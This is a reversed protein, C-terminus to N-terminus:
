QASAVRQPKGGLSFIGAPRHELQGQTILFFREMDPINGFGLIDRLAKQFLDKELEFSRAIKTAAFPRVAPVAEGLRRGFNSDCLDDPDHVARQGRDVADADDSMLDARM